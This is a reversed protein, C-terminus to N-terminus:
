EALKQIQQMVNGVETGKFGEKYSEVKKAFLSKDPEVVKVGAAIAIAKAEDSKEQWLKRQYVSSEAAATKLVLQQMPTLRAWASEGILLVDPNSTHENETFFKSVEYHRDTVYSPWNNEAGDVTGQQLASYLEGYSIPTPSAGLQRMSNIAINSNMVRIKQGKLDDPTVVSKKTMYFSRSGADYYTLGRLKKDLGSALMENGLESDLVKWYHERDQFVYPLNYASMIPVFSELTNSSAKTMDLAGSQLSEISATESGLVGGPHIEITMSGGSLEEVRKKMYLMGMHVPHSEVLGHALKLEVRGGAAQGSSKSQKLRFAFGATAVVVGALLGCLFFSKHKGIM